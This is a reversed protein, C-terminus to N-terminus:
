AVRENLWLASEVTLNDLRKKWASRIKGSKTLGRKPIYIEIGNRYITLGSFGSNAMVGTLDKHCNNGTKVVTAYFM